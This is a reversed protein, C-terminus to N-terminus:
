RRLHSNTQILSQPLQRRAVSQFHVLWVRCVDLIQKTKRKKIWRRCEFHVRGKDSLPCRPSDNHIIVFKVVNPPNGVSPKAPPQQRPRDNEAPACIHLWQNSTHQTSHQTTRTTHHIHNMRTQFIITRILKCTKNRKTKKATLPNSSGSRDNTCHYILWNAVSSPTSDNQKENKARGIWKHQPTNHFTARMQWDSNVTGPSEGM